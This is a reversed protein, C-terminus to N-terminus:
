QTLYVETRETRQVFIMMHQIVFTKRERFTCKVSRKSVATHVAVCMGGFLEDLVVGEPTDGDDDEEFMSLASEVADSLSMEWYVWLYPQIYTQCPTEAINAQAIIDGKPCRKDRM